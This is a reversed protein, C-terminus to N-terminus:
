PRSLVEYTDNLEHGLSIDQPCIKFIFFEGKIEIVIGLRHSREEVVVQDQGENFAIPHGECVEERGSEVFTLRVILVADVTHNLPLNLREV